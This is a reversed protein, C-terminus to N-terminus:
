TYVLRTTTGLESYGSQGLKWYIQSDAPALVWVVFPLGPARVELSISQIYFSKSVGTVAEIIKVRDGIDRALIQTQLSPTQPSISVSGITNQVWYALQTTQGLNSSGDTGLYWIGIEEAGYVSLLYEAGKVGVLPDNQYRMDLLVPSDGFEAALVTNEAEGITKGYDYIGLGRLQLKTIYADQSGTNTIDITAANGGFTASVTLFATLNTGSGDSASNATYDTTAVPTVMSTGGVRATRNNPDTYGASITVSEGVRILSKNNLTYLIQNSTDVTRPYTATQVRTLLNDRSMQLSLGAMTNDLTTSDVLTSRAFRPEFVVTGDGKVYFYGLESQTVRAIEQLVPNRADDRSSDLAYAYTDKGTGISTAYPQRTVNAILTSIVQDSRKNIQAAVGSIYSRAAEEIWDGLVINVRRSGYRGADPKISIIYGIFKVYWTSTAPDLFQARMRLGITWNIRANPHGPSYYGEKNASNLSSNNLVLSMTGAGAVRDKASSGHIGYKISVPSLVDATIETWGLGAGSFECEIKSTILAM